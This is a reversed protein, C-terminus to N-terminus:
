FTRGRHVSKKRGDGTATVRVGCDPDVLAEDPPAAPTTGIASSKTLSESDFLFNGSFKDQLFIALM